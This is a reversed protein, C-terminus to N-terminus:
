FSNSIQGTSFGDIELVFGGVKLQKAIAFRKEFTDQGEHHGQAKLQFMLRSAAPSPAPGAMRMIRPDPQTPDGDPADLAGRAFRHEGHQRM